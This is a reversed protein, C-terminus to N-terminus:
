RREIGPPLWDKKMPRIPPEAPAAAGEGGANGTGSAAAPAHKAFKDRVKGMDIFGVFQDVRKGDLYFRVDPIGGVGEKRALEKAHDVNIKGVVCRGSYEEAVEKLVPALMKCPACWDAHYDVVVLKGPTNIFESFEAESIDRVGASGEKPASAAQQKVQKAQSLLDKARDCSSSLVLLPLLLLPARMGCFVM